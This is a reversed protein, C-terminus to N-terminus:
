SEEDHLKKEWELIERARRMPSRVTATSSTEVFRGVNSGKVEGFEKIRSLPTFPPSDKRKNRDDEQKNDTCRVKHRRTPKEDDSTTIYRRNTKSTLPIHLSSGTRTRSSRNRTNQNRNLEDISIEESDSDSWEGYGYKRALEIVGQASAAEERSPADGPYAGLLRSSLANNAGVARLRGLVGGGGDRDSGRPQVRVKKKGLDTKSSAAVELMKSKRQSKDKNSKNNNFGINFSVGVTTGSTGISASHEVNTIHFPLLNDNTTKKKKRRKRKTSSSSHSDSIKTYEENIHINDRTSPQINDTASSSLAKVVWDEEDDEEEHNDNKVEDDQIREAELLIPTILQEYVKQEQAYKGLNYQKMFRESLHKYKAEKTSYGLSSLKALAVTDAAKRQERTAKKGGTSSTGDASIFAAYQKNVQPIIIKRSKKRPHTGDGYRNYSGSSRTTAYPDYIGVKTFFWKLVFYLEPIYRHLFEAIAICLMVIIRGILGTPLLLRYFLNPPKSPYSSRRSIKISSSPNMTTTTNLHSLSSTPDNTDTHVTNSSSPLFAATSSSPSHTSDKHTNTNILISSSHLQKEHDSENADKELTDVHNNQNLNKRTISEVFDFRETHSSMNEDNSQYTSKDDVEVFDDVAANTSNNSENQLSSSSSVDVTAILQNVYEDLYANTYASDGSDAEEDDNVQENNNVTIDDIDTSGGRISNWCPPRNLLIFATHHKINVHYGSPYQLWARRNMITDTLIAFKM